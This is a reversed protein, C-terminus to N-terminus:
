EEDRPRHLHLGCIVLPTPFPISMNVRETRKDARETEAGEGRALRSQRVPRMRSANAVSAVM